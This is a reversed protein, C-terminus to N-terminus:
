LCWLSLPVKINWRHKLCENAALMLFESLRLQEAGALHHSVFNQTQRKTLEFSSSFVSCADLTSRSYSRSAEVQVAALQRPDMRAAANGERISQRFSSRSHLLLSHSLVFQRVISYGHSELLRFGAACSCSTGPKLLTNGTSYLIRSQNWCIYEELLLAAKWTRQCPATKMLTQLHLFSFLILVVSCSTHAHLLCMSSSVSPDLISQVPLDRLAALQATSLERSSRKLGM